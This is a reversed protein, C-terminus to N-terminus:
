SRGQNEGSFVSVSLTPSKKFAVHSTRPLRSEAEPLRVESDRGNALVGACFEPRLRALPFQADRQGLGQKTMPLIARLRGMAGLLGRPDSWLHPPVWQARHSEKWPSALGDM